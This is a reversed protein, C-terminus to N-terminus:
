YQRKKEEAAHLPNLYIVILGGGWVSGGRAEIKKM